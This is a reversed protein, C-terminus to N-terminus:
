LRDAPLFQVRQARPDLTSHTFCPTNHEPRTDTLIENICNDRFAATLTGYASPDTGSYALTVLSDITNDCGLRCSIGIGRDDMTVFDVDTFYSPDYVQGILTVYQAIDYKSDGPGGTPAIVVKHKSSHKNLQSSGIRAVYGATFMPGTTPGWPNVPRTINVCYLGDLGYVNDQMCKVMHLSGLTYTAPYAVTRGKSAPKKLADIAGHRHGLAAVVLLCIAFHFIKMIPAFQKRQSSVEKNGFM